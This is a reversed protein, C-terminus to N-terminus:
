QQKLKQADHKDGVKELIEDKVNRYMKLTQADHHDNNTIGRVRFRKVRERDFIHNAFMYDKIEFDSSLSMDYIYKDIKSRKKELYPIIGLVQLKPNYKAMIQVYEYYDITGTLSDLETQMVIVTYDSAVLANNTFPSMTPPVDIIIYDYDNKIDRLLYDLYYSEKQENTFSYLFRPFSGLDMGSPLLDLRDSLTITAEKLNKNKIAEFLSIFNEPFEYDYSLTLFNTANAQPDLDLLLVQKQDEQLLEATLSAATTKGVGGKFNGFTIVTAAVILVGKM